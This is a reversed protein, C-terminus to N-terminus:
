LSSSNSHPTPCPSNCCPSNCRCHQLVSATPIPMSMLVPYALQTTSCQNCRLRSILEPYIPLAEINCPTDNHRLTVPLPNTHNHTSMSHSPPQLQIYINCPLNSPNSEGMVAHEAKHKNTRALMVEHESVLGAGDRSGTLFTRMVHSSAPASQSLCSTFSPM